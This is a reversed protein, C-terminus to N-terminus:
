IGKKIPPMIDGENIVSFVMVTTLFKPSMVVSIANGGTTKWAKKIKYIMKRARNHRTKRFIFQGCCM